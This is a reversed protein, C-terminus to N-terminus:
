KKRSVALTISASNGFYNADGGYTVTYVQGSSPRSVTLTAVGNVLTVSTTVTKRSATTSFVVVGTPTGGGPAVPSVRATLTVTGGTVVPNPSQTLTVSTSAKAVTVTSTLSSSAVFSLDAPTYAASAVHPGLSLSSTSYTAKGGSVPFPGLVTTSDVTFTVTGTASGAGAAVPAVTATFTVQQGYVLSATSASLTTTTKAAFAAGVPRDGAMTLSCTLQTGACSNSWGVFTSNADPAATLTVQAGNPYTASCTTGCAIAGSGDSVTGTGAGSRTVTVTRPILTFTATVSRAQDVTVTCTLQTGTCDGSWGTFNSTPTDPNATLTVQTGHTYPFSCLSPCHIGLPSSAVYGSGTGATGVTLTHTIYSGAFMATVSLPQGMTVTCTLQTGTCAGAWGTFHSAVTASTTDPAATLTVQTNYPFDASCSTSCNIGTPDSTVTGAGTVAALGSVNVTLTEPILTFTATVSRAQDMTVNCTLQSGTCDGTWGTFTATGDPLATLTVKTGLVYDFTCTTGCGIGAPSSSVAGGGSGSLGVTLTKLPPPNFTATVSRAQDMTVVCDGTTNTCAGSWGSLVSGPGPHATLTVVTGNPYDASCMTGCTIGTLDDDVAGTGSGALAVTLTRQLLVFTATVSRAQDMTVICTLQAGTCDGSWGFFTSTGTDPAATLTVPTGAAFDAFCSDACQDIGAPASSVTGTGTGASGMSVTLRQPPLNFTATVTNDGNMTITCDGTTNTCAGSWGAFVDGGDPTATLTVSTGNDVTGSCTAGCAILSAPATSAVTGTGTGDELVTLTRSKLAFSATVSTNATMTITCVGTANTCAGSWGTFDSTSDDPTATLTVLTGNPFAQQCQGTQCDIDTPVSSVTGSGQPSGGHNVTLTRPIGNFTATIAIDSQATFILCPNSMASCFPGLNGSWGAFTSGAAATPNLGVLTGSNYAFQVSCAFTCTTGNITVSGAGTGAFDLNLAVPKHTYYVNVTTGSGPPNVFTCVGYNNQLTASDTCGDSPYTPSALMSNDDPVARLTVSIGSEFSAGCTPPCSIGAPYSTVTGNATGFTTDHTSVQIFSTTLTFSPSITTDALMRVGCTGTPAIANCGFGWGSFSSNDTTESLTVVTAYQYSHSCTGPCSIFGDASTVTGRGTGQPSVTLTYTPVPEFEATVNRAQDLSVTCLDTGTCDGSWGIFNSGTAAAASLQITSLIPYAASCTSGCTITAPVDTSTVTGSGTGSRSVTLTNTHLTYTATVTVADTPTFTCTGTGSCLGGSWGDFSTSENTPDNSNLTISTGPTLSTSCVTQGQGCSISGTATFVFGFQAGTGALIVTVRPSTAFTASVSTAGSMTVTCTSTTLRFACAGGWGTFSSGAAAAATLTVSTGARYAHTCTSGCNITKPNDGSTVTGTGGGLTTVTLQNLAFNATVSTAQDLLVTCVGSANTCTGSWGTFVSDAANPTATLTVFSHLDFDDSCTSGCNITHGDVGSLDSTVTGSGSGNLSVALNEVERTFEANVTKAADMTVNCTFSPQPNTCAGTWGAFTTPHTTDVAEQLTVPDGLDFDGGCTTSCSFTVTEPFDGVREFDTSVTGSGTGSTTVTLHRKQLSFTPTVTQAQSMTVVCPGTANTCAGQWGAFRSTTADPTATLTVTTGQYYHDSCQTAPPCSISGVDSTVTGTGNGGLLVSLTFRPILTFNATVSRAQDMSVTCTPSMGTCDGTWGAFTSDGTATGTTPTATLTVQTFQDYLISNLTCDNCNIGGDASTVRGTGTGGTSVSLREPTKSFRVLIPPPSGNMTVACTLSTLSCPYTLIQATSGSDAHATITVVTGLAYFHSQTTCGAGCSIGGVDTSVVGSGGGDKTITLVNQLFNAYITLNRDTLTFTCPTLQGECSTMALNGGTEWGRFLSSSDPTATLTVTTGMDFNICGTGCPFGPPSATVTGNGGTSSGLINVTLQRTTNFTATVSRAVDMTVTCTSTTGTCGGGSWGAFRSGAAAAATLTVGTNTAYFAKCTTGCNISAGTVTGSGTGQKSVLLRRSDVPAITIHPNATTDVGSQANGAAPSTYNSGGGGGGFTALNNGGQGGGYWGGGGAGGFGSAVHVSGGTVYTWSSGSGAPNAGLSSGAGGVAVGTGADNGGAGPGGTTGAGGGNSGGSCGFLFSLTCDQASGGGPQGADGGVGGHSSGGGEAGGGGGGGAVLLVDNTNVPSGSTGCHASDTSLFSAGGGGGGYQVANFLGYEKDSNGGAGGHHVAGGGQNGGSGGGVVAWLTSGSEVEFRASVLGGRGGPSNPGSGPFGGGGAAEVDIQNVNAPVLYGQCADAPYLTAINSAVVDASASPSLGAVSAALILSLPVLASALRRSRTHVRHPTRVERRRDWSM